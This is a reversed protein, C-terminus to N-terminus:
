NSKRDNHRRYVEEQTVGYLEMIRKVRLEEKTEALVTEGYGAALSIVGFLMAGPFFGAITQRYITGLFGGGIAGGIGHEAITPPYSAGTRGEFFRARM